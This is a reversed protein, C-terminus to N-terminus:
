KFKSLNEPTKPQYLVICSASNAELKLVTKLIKTTAGSIINNQQKKKM